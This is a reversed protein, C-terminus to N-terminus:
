TDGTSARPRSTAERHSRLVAIYVAILTLALGYWTLAYELHQNAIALRTAGGQPSRDTARAPGPTAEADLFFPLAKARASGLLTTAMGDLDRWYWLRRDIDTKAAFATKAEPKRLLGILERENAAPEPRTAPDRYAQSVFGRNVIVLAGDATELPAYVHWGPGSASPAWYYAERGTLFRGKVAVRAYELDEGAAIQGAAIQRAAEALPISPAQTRAAIQALLGDKWAKRQLQWTGLAALALVAVAVVLTSWLLSGRTRM